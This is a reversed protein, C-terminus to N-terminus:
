PGLAIVERSDGFYVFVIPGDAAVWYRNDESRTRAPMFQISGLEEGTDVDLRVLRAQTDLLYLSDNTVVGNSVIDFDRRDWKIQGTRADLALARGILIIDGFSLIPCRLIWPVEMNLHEVRTIWLPKQTTKDQLKVAFPGLYLDFSSSSSVLVFGDEDALVSDTGLRDGTRADFSYIVAQTTDQAYLIEGEVVLRYVRHDPLRPTRWLEDGSNLDYAHVEFLAMVYVRKADIALLDAGELQKEWFLNGTVADIVKIFRTWDGTYQIWVVRGSAALLLPADVRGDTFALPHRWYEQLNLTNNILERPERRERLFVYVAQSIVLIALLFWITKPVGKLAKLNM